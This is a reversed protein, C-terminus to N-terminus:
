KEGGGIRPLGHQERLRARVQEPTEADPEFEVTRKNRAREQYVVGRLKILQSELNDSQAECAAIRNVARRLEDADASAESSFRYCLLTAAGSALACLLALATFLETSLEAV